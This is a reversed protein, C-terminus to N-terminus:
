TKTTSVNKALKKADPFNELVTRTIYSWTPTKQTYKKTKNCWKKHSAKEIEWEKKLEICRDALKLRQSVPYTRLTTSAPIDM